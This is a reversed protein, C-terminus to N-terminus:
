EKVGRPITALRLRRRDNGGGPRKRERGEDRGWARREVSGTTSRVLIREQTNKIEKLFLGKLSGDLIVSSIRLSIQLCTTEAQIKKQGESKAGGGVLFFFYCCAKTERM